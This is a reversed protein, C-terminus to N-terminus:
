AREGSARSILNVSCVKVRRNVKKWNGYIVAAYILGAISLFTSVM